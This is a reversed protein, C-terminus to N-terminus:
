GEGQTPGPVMELVANNDDNSLINQRPEKPFAHAAKQHTHQWTMPHAQQSQGMHWPAVLGMCWLEQARLCCSSLLGAALSLGLVAAFVLRPEHGGQEM